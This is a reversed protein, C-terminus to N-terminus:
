FPQRWLALGMFACPDVSINTNSFKNGTKWKQKMLSIVQIHNNNQRTKIKHSTKRPAIQDMTPTRLGKMMLFGKHWQKPQKRRIGKMRQFFFLARGQLSCNNLLLQKMEWPRRGRVSLLFSWLYVYNDFVLMKSLWYFQTLLIRAPLLYVPHWVLGPYIYLKLQSKQFVPLKCIMIVSQLSAGLNLSRLSM